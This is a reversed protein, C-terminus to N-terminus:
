WNTYESADLRQPHYRWSPAYGDKGYDRILDCRIVCGRLVRSRLAGTVQDTEDNDLKLDVKTCLPLPLDLCDGGLISYVQPPNLFFRLQLRVPWTTDAVM